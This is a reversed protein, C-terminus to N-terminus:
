FSELKWVDFAPEEYPHEQKLANVAAQIFEDECVMEVKLEEVKEVIDLQGIFPKSGSRPRFQGTGLTEWACCDYDGIQGAGASFMASKVPEAHQVPVFFCIKYM